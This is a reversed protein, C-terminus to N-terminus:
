PRALALTNLTGAVDFSCRQFAAVSMVARLM